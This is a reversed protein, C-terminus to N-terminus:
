RALVDFPQFLYAVLLVVARPAYSMFLIIM